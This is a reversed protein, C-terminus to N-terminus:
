STGQEREKAELLFEKVTVDVIPILEGEAVPDFSPHVFRVYVMGNRPDTHVCVFETEKPLPPEVDFGFTRGRVLLFWTFVNGAVAALKFRREKIAKQFAEEIAKEKTNRM